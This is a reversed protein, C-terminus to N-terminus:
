RLGDVWPAPYHTRGITGWVRGRIQGVYHDLIAVADEAVMQRDMNEDNLLTELHLGLRSTFELATQPTNLEAARTEAVLLASEKSPGSAEMVQTGVWSDRVEAYFKPDQGTYTYTGTYQVKYRPGQTPLTRQYNDGDM